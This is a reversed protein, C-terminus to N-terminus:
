LTAGWWMGWQLIESEEFVPLWRHRFRRCRLELQWSPLPWHRAREYRVIACHRLSRIRVMRFGVGVLHGWRGGVRTSSALDKGKKELVPGFKKRYMEQVTESEKRSQFILFATYVAGILILLMGDGKGLRGDMSLAWAIISLAILIPVDLRILQQSVMLPAIAARLVLSWCYM